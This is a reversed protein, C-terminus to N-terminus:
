SQNDPQQEILLGEDAIALRRKQVTEALSFTVNGSVEVEQSIKGETREAMERLMLVTAMRGSTLVQAVSASIDKRTAKNRLLQEYIKTIHLKKPRGGPNGSQGKQFPRGFSKKRASDESNQAKTVPDM